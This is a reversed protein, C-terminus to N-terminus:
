HTWVSQIESGGFRVSRALPWALVAMLLSKGNM